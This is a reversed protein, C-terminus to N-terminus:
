PLATRRSGPAVAGSRSSRPARPEPRSSQSFLPPAQGCSAPPARGAAWPHARLQRQARSPSLQCKGPPGPRAGAVRRPGPAAAHAERQRAARVGPLRVVDWLTLAPSSRLPRRKWRRPSSSLDSCPGGPSPHFSPGSIPWSPASQLHHKHRPLALPRPLTAEAKRLRGWRQWTSWATVVSEAGRLNGESVVLGM